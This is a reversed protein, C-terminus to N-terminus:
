LGGVPSKIADPFMFQHVTMIQVYFQYVNEQITYNRTRDVTPSKPAIAIGGAILLKYLSLRIQKESMYPFFAKGQSVSFPVRNVGSVYARWCLETLLLGEKVGYKRAFEIVVMHTIM